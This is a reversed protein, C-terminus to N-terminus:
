RLHSPNFSAELREGSSLSIEGSGNNPSQEIDKIFIKHLTPALIRAKGTVSFTPLTVMKVDQGTENAALPDLIELGRDDPHVQSVNQTSIKGFLHTSNVNCLILSVLCHKTFLAIWIPSYKAM